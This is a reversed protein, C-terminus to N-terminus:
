VHLDYALFGPGMFILAIAMVLLLIYYNIGDSLLKGERWKFALKIVLIIANLLAALQTFLGITLFVAIVAEIGGYAKANSGSSTGKAIIKRYGFYALTIGLVLRILLPGIQEYALLGPFLSLMNIYLNPEALTYSHYCILGFSLSIDIQNEIIYAANVINARDEPRSFSETYGLYIADVRGRRREVTETVFARIKGFDRKARFICDGPFM